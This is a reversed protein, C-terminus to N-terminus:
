GGPLATLQGHVVAREPFFYFFIKIQVADAGTGRVM